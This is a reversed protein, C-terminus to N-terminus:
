DLLYPIMDMQRVPLMRYPVGNPYYAGHGFLAVRPRWYGTRDVALNQWVDLRNPRYFGTPMVPQALPAPMPLSPAPDALPTLEPGDAARATAGLLAASVLLDILTRRM